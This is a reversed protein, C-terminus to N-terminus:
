GTWRSACHNGGVSIIDLSAPTADVTPGGDKLAMFVVGRAAKMYRSKMPQRFNQFSNLTTPLGHITGTDLIILASPSRWKETGIIIAM